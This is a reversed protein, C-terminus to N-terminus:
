DYKMENIIVYFLCHFLLTSCGHMRLVTGLQVAAGGVLIQAGDQTFLFHALVTINDIIV